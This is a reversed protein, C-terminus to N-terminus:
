NDDNKRKAAAERRLIAVVFAASATFLFVMEWVDSFFKAGGSAGILVNVLFATFFAFAFILFV